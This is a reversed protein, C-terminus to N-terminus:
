RRAQPSTHNAEPTVLLGSGFTPRKLTLRGADLDVGTRALTQKALRIPPRHWVNGGRLLRLFFIKRGRAHPALGAKTVAAPLAVCAQSTEHPLAAQLALRGVCGQDAATSCDGHAM